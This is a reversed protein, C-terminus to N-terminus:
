VDDMDDITSRGSSSRAGTNPCADKMAAKMRKGTNTMRGALSRQCSLPLMLGML